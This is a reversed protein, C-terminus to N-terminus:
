HKFQHAAVTQPKPRAGQFEDTDDSFVIQGQEAREALKEPTPGGGVVAREGVAELAHAAARFAQTFLVSQHKIPEDLNGQGLDFRTCAIKFAGDRREVFRQRRDFARSISREFRFQAPRAAFHQEPAVGGVDRQGFM